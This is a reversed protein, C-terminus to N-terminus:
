YKFIVKVQVYVKAKILKKVDELKPFERKVYDVCQDMYDKVGETKVYLQEIIVSNIGIIKVPIKNQKTNLIEIPADPPHEDVNLSPEESTPRTSSSQKKNLLTNL